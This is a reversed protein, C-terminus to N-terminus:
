LLVTSDIQVLPICFAFYNHLQTVTYSYLQLAFSILTFLVLLVYYYSLLKGIGVKRRQPCRPLSFLTATPRCTALNGPQWTAWTAWNIWSGHDMIWNLRAQTCPLTAHKSTQPLSAM